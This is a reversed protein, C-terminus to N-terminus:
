FSMLASAFLAEDIKSCKFDSKLKSGSFAYPVCRRAFDRRQKGDSAFGSDSKFSFKTARCDICYGIKFVDCKKENEPSTRCVIRKLAIAGVTKSAKHVKFSGPKTVVDQGEHGPFAKTTFSVRNLAGTHAWGGCM